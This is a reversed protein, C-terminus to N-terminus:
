IIVCVKLLFVFMSQARWFTHWASYTSDCAPNTHRARWMTDYLIDDPPHIYRFEGPMVDHAGASRKVGTLCLAHESFYSSHVHITHNFELFCSIACGWWRWEGLPMAAQGHRSRQLLIELSSCLIPAKHGLNTWVFGSLSVSYPRDLTVLVAARIFLNQLTM